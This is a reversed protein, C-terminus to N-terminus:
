ATVPTGKEVLFRNEVAGVIGCVWATAPGGRDTFLETERTGVIGCVWATAAGGSEKHFKTEVAGEEGCVYKREPSRNAMKLPGDEDMVFLMGAMDRGSGFADLRPKITGTLGAKKAWARARPASVLSPM